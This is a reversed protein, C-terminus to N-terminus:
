AEAGHVARGVYSFGNQYGMQCFLEKCRVFCIFLGSHGEKKGWDEDEKGM